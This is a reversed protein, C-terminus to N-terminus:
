FIMLALPNKTGSARSALPYFNHINEGSPRYFTLVSHSLPVISIREPQIIARIWHGLLQGKVREPGTSGGFNINLQDTHAVLFIILFKPSQQM